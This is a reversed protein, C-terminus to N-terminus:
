SFNYEMGPLVDFYMRRNNKGKNELKQLVIRGVERTNKVHPGGDAQLDVGEIEVVRLVSLNPPMRGALKVIGPRSLAEERSLYYIRVERNRGLESNAEEICATIAERDFAKFSFDVRAGNPAVHNGTILAEERRLIVAALVHLATHLRMLKYRRNWDLIGKVKNVGEPLNPEVVHMVGEESFLAEKVIAKGEGFELLGTDSELGGGRPHFCTRDLLVGKPDRSLVTAEFERLYSDDMYLLETKGQKM